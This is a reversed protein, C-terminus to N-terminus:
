FKGICVLNEILPACMKDPRVMRALKDTLVFEGSKILAKALENKSSISVCINKGKTLGATFQLMEHAKQITIDQILWPGLEIDNPAVHTLTIGKLVSGQYYGVAPSADTYFLGGTFKGLSCGTHKELTTLAGNEELKPISVM